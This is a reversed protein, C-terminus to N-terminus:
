AQKRIIALAAIAGAGLALVPALREPFARGQTQIFVAGGAALAAAALTPVNAQPIHLAKGTCDGCARLLLALATVDPLIWVAAMLAALIWLTKERKRTKDKPM